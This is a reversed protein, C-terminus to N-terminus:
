NFQYDVIKLLAGNKIDEIKLNIHDYVGKNNNKNVEDLFNEQTWKTSDLFKYQLDKLLRNLENSNTKNDQESNIYYNDIIIFDNIINSNIYYNQFNLYLVLYKLQNFQNLKKAREEEEKLSKVNNLYDNIATLDSKNYFRNLNGNIIYNYGDFYVSRYKIVEIKHSLKFNMLLQSIKM